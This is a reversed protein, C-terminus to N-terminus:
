PTFALDVKGSHRGDGCCLARRSLGRAAFFIFHLELACRGAHFLCFQIKSWAAYAGAWPIATAERAATTVTSTAVSENTAAAKERM